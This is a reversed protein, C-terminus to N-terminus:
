QTNIAVASIATTWSEADPQRFNGFHHVENVFFSSHFITRSRAPANPYSADPTLLAYPALVGQPFQITDGIAIDNRMVTKFNVTSVGVWTPQGILDTFALVKPVPPTSGDTAVINTGSVSIMVGPYNKGYVQMGIKQSRELVAIGFAAPSSYHGSQDYNTTLNPSVNIQATYGPFAQAFTTALATALPMGAKWVLAIDQGRVTIGPNLILDLTQEVGQWNGFAQFVTGQVLLGSQNPNALPLGAKMGGKLTFGAGALQTGQGITTLGIGWVRLMSSGQPTAFQYVPIDFEINLAGPLTQGGVYSTFTTGGAKLSLGLGNVTPQWVLGSAPDTLTLDYYRM